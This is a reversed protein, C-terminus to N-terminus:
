QGKWLLEEPQQFLRLSEGRDGMHNRGVNAADGETKTWRVVSDIDRLDKQIKGEKLRSSSSPCRKVVKGDGGTKTWGRRCLDMNEDGRAAQIGRERDTGGSGVTV